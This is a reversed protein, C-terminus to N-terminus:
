KFCDHRFHLSVGDLPGSTTSGAARQRPNFVSGYGHQQMWPELVDEYVDNQVEVDSL